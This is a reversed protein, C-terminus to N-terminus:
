AADKSKATLRNKRKELLLFRCGIKLFNSINLFGLLTGGFILAFTGVCSVM